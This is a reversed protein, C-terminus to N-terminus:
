RGTYVRRQEEWKQANVGMVLLWLMLSAEGALDLYGILDPLNRALTPSIFLAFSDILLSVGAIATLVGITRPLFTSRFILYGLLLCYFGFFILSANYGQSHLKLFILAMAQLQPTTFVHLYHANGLLLLPVIHFIATVAGVCCGVVGLLAALLSFTRSVPKLLEYLLLTVVIYAAISIIDSVFGLRYLLQSGLINRATAAADGAVILNGRVGVEAFLGAVITLLYFAGTVRAKVAPSAGADLPKMTAAPTVVELASAAHEHLNLRERREDNGDSEVGYRSGHHRRRGVGRNRQRITRPFRDHFWRSQNQGTGIGAYRDAMNEPRAPSAPERRSDAIRRDVVARRVTSRPMEVIKADNEDGSTAPM